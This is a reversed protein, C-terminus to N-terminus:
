SIDQFERCAHGFFTDLAGRVSSSGRRRGAQPTRARLLLHRTVAYICYKSFSDQSEHIFCPVLPSSPASAAGPSPTGPSTAAYRVISDGFGRAM